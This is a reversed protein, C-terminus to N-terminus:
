WDRPFRVLALFARAGAPAASFQSVRSVQVFPRSPEARRSSNRVSWTM